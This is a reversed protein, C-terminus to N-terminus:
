LHCFISQQTIFMSNLEHVVEPCFSERKMASMTSLRQKCWKIKFNNYNSGGVGVPRDLRQITSFHHIPSSCSLLHLILLHSILLHSILLHSILLHSVLLHSILIHLILLHSILLYFILLHMNVHSAAWILVPVSSLTTCWWRKGLFPRPSAKSNVVNSTLVDGLLLLLVGGKAILFSSLLFFTNKTVIQLIFSLWSCLMAGREMEFNPSNLSKTRVSM